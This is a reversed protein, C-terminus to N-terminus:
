RSRTTSSQLLRDVDERWPAGEMPGQRTVALAGVANAFRAARELEWGWLLGAALGAAYCDGAGTPDTETVDFGPVTIREDRTFLISGEAGRKLAVIKAGHQLLAQCAKADNDVGTLLRAEEGSPLIVAAHALVPEVLDRVKEPGMLEARLNPDFSITLGAESALEVARYCAQRMSENVSLSSGTIHLWRANQIYARDIQEPGLRGAAADAIHFIFQRSGDEYYAVFAVGTAADDIAKLWSTDVGDAQLRSTLCRGFPDAGVCGIFGCSLGLRAVADAFIAPAGSPYPGLFTDPQDLPIGVGPRMIEVLAEGLTIVEPM